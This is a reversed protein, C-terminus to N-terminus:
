DQALTLVRVEPAGGAVLVSACEHATAGTTYVDDVLLLARRPPPHLLRVRGAISASRDARGLGKLQRGGRRHLLRRVCCRHRSELQRVVLDVADYGHRRVRGGRVPVPVVVCGRYAAEVRVALLEAFLSALGTRGSFKFQRVLERALGRYDFLAEHSAFALERARCRLCPVEQERMVPAGCRRCHDRLRRQEAGLVARCRGCLPMAGTGTPLEGGCGGCAQPFLVDLVTAVVRQSGAASM